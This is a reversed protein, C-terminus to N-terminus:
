FWMVNQMDASTFYLDLHSYIHLRERAGVSHKEVRHALSVQTTTTDKTMIDFIEFIFFPENKEFSIKQMHNFSTM